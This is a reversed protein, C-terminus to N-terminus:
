VSLRRKVVTKPEVEDPSLQGVFALPSGEIFLNLENETIRVVGDRARKWPAAFRGRELRKQLICLGTGDWWLVKARTCARNVFLFMAGSVPDHGLEAKVLHALTDYSKRLDTPQAAAFVPRRGTALM